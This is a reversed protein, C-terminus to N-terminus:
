AQEKWAAIGASTLRYTAPATRQLYGKTVLAGCSHGVVQGYRGTFRSLTRTPINPPDGAVLAIRSARVMADM